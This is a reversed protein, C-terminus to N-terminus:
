FPWIYSLKKILFMYLYFVYINQTTILDRKLIRLVCYWFTYALPPHKSSCLILLNYNKSYIILPDKEKQNLFVHKRNNERGYLAKAISSRSYYNGFLLLHQGQPSNQFDIHTNKITMSITLTNKANLPHLNPISPTKHHMPCNWVVFLNYEM